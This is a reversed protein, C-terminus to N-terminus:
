LAQLRIMTITEKLIIRSTRGCRDCDVKSGQELGQEGWGTGGHESDAHAAFNLQFGCHPCPVRNIRGQTTAGPGLRPPPQPM